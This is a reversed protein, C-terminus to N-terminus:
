TQCQIRLYPSCILLKAQTHLSVAKCMVIFGCDLQLMTKTNKSHQLTPQYGIPLLTEM